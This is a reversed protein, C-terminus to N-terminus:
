NGNHFLEGEINKRFILLFSHGINFYFRRCKKGGLKVLKRQNTQNWIVIDVLVWKAQMAQEIIKSHLNVYPIHEEM